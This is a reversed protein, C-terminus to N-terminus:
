QIIQLASRCKLADPWGYLFYIWFELRIFVELTVTFPSRGAVFLSLIVLYPVLYLTCASSYLCSASSLPPHWLYLHWLIFSSQYVAVETAHLHAPPCIATGLANPCSCYPGLILLCKFFTFHSWHISPRVSWRVSLSLTIDLTVQCMVLFLHRLINFSIYFFICIDCVTFLFTVFLVYLHWLYHISIDCFTTEYTM